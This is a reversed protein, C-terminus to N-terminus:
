RLGGRAMISWAGVGVAKAWKASLRDVLWGAALFGAAAGGQFWAALTGYDDDSWGLDTAIAPKLVSIIQRDILNLVGATLALGFLLWRRRSSLIM